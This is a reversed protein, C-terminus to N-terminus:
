KKWLFVECEDILAIKKSLIFFYDSLRNVFQLCEKNVLFEENLAVMRRELRRTITRCVHCLAVRKNGAPLIFNHIEPLIENMLNIAQELYSVDQKTILIDKIFHQKEPETALCSGLNFLKNQVNNLVNDIDTPLDQARLLGIFSNLEDATGYAELRANTKSVRTGGVLSTTGNDGTKTYIKM